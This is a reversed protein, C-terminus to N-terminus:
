YSGMQIGSVGIRLMNKADQHWHVSPIEIRL